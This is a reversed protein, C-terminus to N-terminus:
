GHGFLQWHKDRMGWCGAAGCFGGVVVSSGLPLAIAVPWGGALYGLWALVAILAVGFVILLGQGLTRGSGSNQEGDSGGLVLVGVCVVVFIGQGAGRLAGWLPGVAFEEPQEQLPLSKSREPPPQQAARKRERRSKRSM